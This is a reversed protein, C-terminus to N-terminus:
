SGTERGISIEVIASVIAACEDSPKELGDIYELGQVTASYIRWCTRHVWASPGYVGSADDEALTINLGMLNSQSDAKGCKICPREPDNNATESM